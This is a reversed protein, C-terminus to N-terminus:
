HSEREFVVRPLPHRASEFVSVLDRSHQAGGPARGCLLQMVKPSNSFTEM